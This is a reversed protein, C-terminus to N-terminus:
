STVRVNDFELVASNKDAYLSDSVIKPVYRAVTGFGASSIFLSTNPFNEECTNGSDATLLTPGGGGCICDATKALSPDCM